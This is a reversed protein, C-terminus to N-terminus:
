KNSNMRWAEAELLRRQADVVSQKADVLPLVEGQYDVINLAGPAGYQTLIDGLVTTLNKPAYFQQRGGIRVRHGLRELASIHISEGITQAHRDRAVVRERM